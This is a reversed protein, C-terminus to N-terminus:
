RSPKPRKIETRTHKIYPSANGILDFMEVYHAFRFNTTDYGRRRFMALIDEQQKPSLLYYGRNYRWFDSESSFYFMVEYRLAAYDAHRIQKFLTSFGYALRLIRIPIYYRCQGNQLATPYVCYGTTARATVAQGAAYRVCTQYHPCQTNFCVQYNKPVEHAQITRTNEAM